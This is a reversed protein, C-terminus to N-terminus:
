SLMVEAFAAPESAPLGWAPAYAVRALYLGAADFTPAARSRDRSALVESVWSAGHKGKGVYVLTGVLNRVMHHLFANACFEFVVYDGHRELQLRRLERVPSRAQCESSRFASFDHRGVLVGAAGRMAEIDLPAHFWGIRGHAVAPRVARNLLVYRYCRELASYRANFDDAVERAWLVAIGPPLSANVGRVWASEPRTASTDFHVIQGLAHVGADTRGACITEIREEAIHALAAELHDQVGCRSPQTQWGCFHAGDYELALAIRTL